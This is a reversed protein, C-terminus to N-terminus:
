GLAISSCAGCTICNSPGEAKHIITVHCSLMNPLYKLLWLPTLNNIGDRGWAQLDLKGDVVATNVATGLETLDSCILGAGINCGLRKPDVTANESDSGPTVIGADRFALEAAAVAIEIDRAMVKVAKRYNRPVFKTTSLEPVEGAVQSALGAADFAGVRRTWSTPGRVAETLADAGIGAASVAGVGTIVVRRTSM